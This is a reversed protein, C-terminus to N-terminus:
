GLAPPMQISEGGPTLAPSFRRAVKAAGFVRTGLWALSRPEPGQSPRGSAGVGRELGESVRQRYFNRPQPVGRHSRNLAAYAVPRGEPARRPLLQPGPYCSAHGASAPVSRPPYQGAQLLSSQQLADAPSAGPGPETPSSSATAPSPWSTGAVEQHESKCVTSPPRPLSRKTGTWPKTNPTATACPKALFCIKSLLPLRPVLM